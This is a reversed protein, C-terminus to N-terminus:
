SEFRKDSKIKSLDISKNTLWGIKETEFCDFEPVYPKIDLLPTKNLMDVGEIEIYNKSISILKVVSIGIANPRKPARTAFVGHKKDDLFPTVLLNYNFSKHLHYILYIHSFGNLDQLGETYKKKLQITGKINNAGKGQIPMNEKTKFPTYITGIPKFKIAM